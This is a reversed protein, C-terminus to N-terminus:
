RDRGDRDQEGQHENVPGAHPMKPNWFTGTMSAHTGSFKAGSAELLGEFGPHSIRAGDLRSRVPVILYPLGTSVGSKPM